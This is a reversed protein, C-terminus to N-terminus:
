PVTTFAIKHVPPLGEAMVTWSEGLGDGKLIKGDATGAYVANGDVALVEVAGPLHEVVPEWADGARTSRYITGRAGGDRGRWYRPRGETGSTFVVEPQEPSAALPTM